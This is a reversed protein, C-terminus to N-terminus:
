CMVQRKDNDSGSGVRNNNINNTWQVTYVHRPKHSHKNTNVALKSFELAVRGEKTFQDCASTRGKQASYNQVTNRGEHFNVEYTGNRIRFTSVSAHVKSNIHLLKQKTQTHFKTRWKSPCLSFLRVHCSPILPLLSFFIIHLKTTQTTITMIDLLILHAPFTAHMPLLSILVPTHHSFTVSSLVHFVLADIPKNSISPLLPQPISQNRQPYIGTVPQQSHPRM